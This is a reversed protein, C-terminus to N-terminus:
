LFKLCSTRDINKSKPETFWRASREEGVFIAPRLGDRTVLVRDSLGLIEPLESSILLVALGEHALRDIVGRVDAKAVVDIGRTPEDLIVIRPKSM